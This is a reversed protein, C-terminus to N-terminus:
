DTSFTITLINKDNKREYEIKKSMEKVMFIGLGGIPREEYSLSIDPDQKQLPNYEYGEDEFKLIVENNTKDTSVKVTGTKEPYAYSCINVFIEELCINIKNILGGKIEWSAAIDSLWSSLSAFNEILAKLEITKQM